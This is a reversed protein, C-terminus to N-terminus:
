RHSIVCTMDNLGYCIYDLVDDLFSPGIAEASRSGRHSHEGREM